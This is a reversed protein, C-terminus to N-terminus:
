EDAVEDPEEYWPVREGLRARLRWKRTKPHAEIRRRLEAVRERIAPADAPLLNAAEAELRDLDREVTHQLGWDRSCLAAVREGDITELDGDGVPHEALLLGLDILDKDNLKVIQLKTLLLEALPVTPADADLREGLPLKHCMTFDGLFVDVKLKDGPGYFIARSHGHLANFRKFPEYDAAQFAREVNSLGDATVFDIDSYDRERGVDELHGPCHVRVALGGLLRLEVGADAAVAVLRRAEAEVEEPTRTASM